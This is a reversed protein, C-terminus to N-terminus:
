AWSASIFQLDKKHHVECDGFGDYERSSEMSWVDIGPGNCDQEIEIDNNNIYVKFM